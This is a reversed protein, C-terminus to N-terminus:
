GGKVGSALPDNGGGVVVCSADPVGVSALRDTLWQLM